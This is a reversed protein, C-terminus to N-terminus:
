DVINNFPEKRSYVTITYKRPIKQPYCLEKIEFELKSLLDKSTIFSKIREFFNKYYCEIAQTCEGDHCVIVKVKKSNAYYALVVKRMSPINKKLLASFVADEAPMVYEAWEKKGLSSYDLVLDNNM